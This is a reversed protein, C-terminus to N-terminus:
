QMDAGRLPSHCLVAKRCRLLAALRMARMGTAGGDSLSEPGHFDGLVELPRRTRQDAELDDRRQAAAVRLCLAPDQSYHYHSRDYGACGARLDVRPSVNPTLPATDVGGYGVGFGAPIASDSHRYIARVQEEYDYDVVLYDDYKPLNEVQEKSLSPVNVSQNDYDIQCRGIPLLVKKGFIWFGTDIVLYRIHGSEDVLIDHVSGVQEQPSIAYVDYGKLNNGSLINDKYHSDYDKIKILKM